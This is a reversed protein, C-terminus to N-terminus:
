ADVESLCYSAQSEGSAIRPLYTKKLAESGWNMVPTMGLHSIVMMLSTSACVRALEEVMIAQTVHDAGSGGYAEPIGLAPLEMATCAKFNDWPYEGTEDVEAARSAIRSEAFHRVVERFSRQEETLMM